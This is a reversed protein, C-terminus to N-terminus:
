FEWAKNWEPKSPVLKGIVLKEGIELTMLDEGAVTKVGTREQVGAAQKAPDHQIMVIGLHIFIALEPKVRNIFKEADETCLHWKIRKDEPTTVPLFLVRSGIYQDAIEDSYATDSVYSVIGNETHFRFGVNTPDSHDARMIETKVSAIDFVDGPRFTFHKEPLGFHYKSFVPGLNEHGEMVSVSGYLEGRKVWGGKTMGEIVVEADSYHDPHCHSVIVADTTQLDYSIACMNTLAGPGPDVHIRSGHSHLIFGGTSRAQFMTTHRGGGTGLFVVKANM